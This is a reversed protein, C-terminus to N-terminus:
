KLSKMTDTLKGSGTNLADLAAATYDGKRATFTFDRKANTGLGGIATIVNTAIQIGRDAGTTNDTITAFERKSTIPQGLRIMGNNTSFTGADGGTLGIKSYEPVVTMGQGVNVNSSSTWYSGYSEANAFDLLYSVNLVKIGTEKAFATAGAAPNAFAFGGMEGAVDGPFIKMGGFSSPSFYVTKSAKGFIGGASDEYPNPFSKTKKFDAFEALQARNEVKYGASKLDSVFKAYAKDAISQMTAHDIGTLTSKATSKGGFGSGTLGGGAKASNTKYTAFGVVFSGIVVKDAGAFAKPTTTVISDTKALGMFGGKREASETIGGKASPGGCATLVFPILAIAAAWRFSFTM